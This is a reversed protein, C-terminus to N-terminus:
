GHPSAYISACAGRLMNYYAMTYAVISIYYRITADNCEDSAVFENLRDYFLSMYVSAIYVTLKLMQLLCLALEMKANSYARANAVLLAGELESRSM